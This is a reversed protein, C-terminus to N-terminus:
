CELLKTSRLLLLIPNRTYSRRELSNPDCTPIKHEISEIYSKVTVVDNIVMSIRDDCHRDSDGVEGLGVYWASYCSDLLYM